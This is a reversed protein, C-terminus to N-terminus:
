RGGGGRECQFAGRLFDFLSIRHFDIGPERGEGGFNIKIFTIYIYTYIVLLSANNYMYM